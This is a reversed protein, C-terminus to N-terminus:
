VMDPVHNKSDDRDSRALSANTQDPVEWSSAFALLLWGLKVTLMQGTLLLGLVPILMLMPAPNRVTLRTRQATKFVTYLGIGFLLLGVIGSYCLVELIVNHPSAIGFVSFYGTHGIGFIINPKILQWVAEYIVDRGGSDGESISALLRLMVLASQTALIYMYYMAGAVGLLLTGREARTRKTKLMAVLALMVILAVLAVRSGTAILLALMLPVPILLTLRKWRAKFVNTTAFFVMITVATAVKVGVFNSNDGFMTLRGTEPYVGVGIGLAYCVSLVASGFAFSLLGQNRTHSRHAFHREIIWYLAINVLLGSEFISLGGPTYNIANVILLYLYFLIFWTTASRRRQLVVFTDLQPLISIIYFLGILATISVNYNGLMKAEQFNIAFCYLYLLRDQWTNLM